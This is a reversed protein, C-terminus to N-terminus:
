PSVEPCDEAHGATRSDCAPCPLCKACFGLGVDDGPWHRFKLLCRWCERRWGLVYPRRGRWHVSSLCRHCGGGFSTGSGAIVGFQYAWRSLWHTIKWRRWRGHRDHECTGHQAAFGEYSCYMCPPPYGWQDDPMWMVPHDQDCEVLQWGDPPNAACERCTIIATDHVCQPPTCAVKMCDADEDHEAVPLPCDMESTCIETTISM